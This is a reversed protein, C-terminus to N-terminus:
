LLRRFFGVGLIELHRRHSLCTVFTILVRSTPYFSRDNNWLQQCHRDEGVLPITADVVLSFFVFSFAPYAVQLSLSFIRYVTFLCCFRDGPHLTHCMYRIYRTSCSRSIHPLYSSPSSLHLYVLLCPSGYSSTSSFSLFCFHHEHGSSALTLGQSSIFCVM